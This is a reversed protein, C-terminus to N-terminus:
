DEHIISNIKYDRKISETIELKNNFFRFWKVGDLHPNCFVMTFEEGRYVHKDYFRQKYIDDQYYEGDSFIKNIDESYIISSPSDGEFVLEWYYDMCIDIPCLVYDEIFGVHNFLEVLSSKYKEIISNM